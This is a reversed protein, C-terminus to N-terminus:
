TQQTPMSVDSTLTWFVRSVSHYRKLSWLDGLGQGENWSVSGDHLGDKGEEGDDGNGVRLARREGWDRRVAPRRAAARHDRRVTM